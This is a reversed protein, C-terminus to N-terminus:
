TLGAQDREKMAKVTKDREVQIDKDYAQKTVCGTGLVLPMVVAAVALARLYRM